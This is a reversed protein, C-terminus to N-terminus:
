VHDTVARLRGDDPGSQDYGSLIDHHAHGMLSKVADRDGTQLGITAFTHRLSYFNLGKRGNIKLQKLRKGFATTVYDTHCKETSQVFRSGLRNLFVCGADEGPNKPSPREA